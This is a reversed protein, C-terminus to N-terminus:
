ACMQRCQSSQMPAKTFFVSAGGLILVGGLACKLINLHVFYADVDDADANIPKAKIPMAKNPMSKSMHWKHVSARIALGVLAAVWVGLLYDFLNNGYSTNNIGQGKGHNPLNRKILNYVPYVFLILTAVATLTISEVPMSTGLIPTLIITLFAGFAQLFHGVAEKTPLILRHGCQLRKSCAGYVSFSKNAVFVPILLATLACTLGGLLVVEETPYHSKSNEAEEGNDVSM